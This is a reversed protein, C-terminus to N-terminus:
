FRTAGQTGARSRQLISRLRGPAVPKQLLVLSASAAKRKVDEATDGSILCAKLTTGFQERMLDIAEVGNKSGSLRFDSIVFDPVPMRGVCDLADQASAALTVSCGWSQLLGVLASSGLADDEILLVHMDQLGTGAMAPVLGDDTSSPLKLGSQALPVTLRFRSGRGLESCLQLPHNLLLCSRNVMSLGLGLGKTRDRQQNEVQFFEEFIKEHHQPAIGIGSDWVEIRLHAQDHSPRCAVLVSGRQTYQLANSVLNLLIRQLLVPDSQVWAATSRFRLRLGKEAAIGNFFFGLQELVTGLSVPRLVVESSQAELRSYDFFVDLMEQLARTSADVGAVIEGTRADVPIQMLRSVFMGLAHAPQRLDHSAAALFRSKALYAEEAKEKETRLQDDYRTRVYDFAAAVLTYFGLSLLFHFSTVPSYQRAFPLQQAFLMLYVGAAILFGMSYFRGLRQGKLFFALFPTTYVWFLGTSEVGGLVILAGFIVIAALLLMTEAFGVYRRYQSIILAPTALCVVAMLEILGLTQMGPTVLNFISFLFGVVAGITTAVRVQRMREQPAFESEARSTLWRRISTYFRGFAHPVTV